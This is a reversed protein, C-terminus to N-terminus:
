TNRGADNWCHTSRYIFPAQFVYIHMHILKCINIIPAFDVRGKNLNQLETNLFPQIPLQTIVLNRKIFM